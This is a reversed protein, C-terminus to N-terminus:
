IGETPLTPARPPSGNVSCVTEIYELTENLYLLTRGYPVAAFEAIIQNVGAPLRQLAGVQKSSANAEDAGRKTSHVSITASLFGRLFHDFLSIEAELALVFFRFDKRDVDRFMDLEFSPRAFGRKVLSVFAQFRCQEICFMVPSVGSGEKVDKSLMDTKGLKDMFAFMSEPSRLLACIDLVISDSRRKKDLGDKGQLGNKLLFLAVEPRGSQIALTFHSNRRYKTEADANIFGREAFTRLQELNGNALLWMSPTYASYNDQMEYEYDKSNFELHWAIMERQDDRCAMVLPTENMINTAHTEYGAELLFRVGDIYGHQYCYHAVTNGDGDRPMAHDFYLVSLHQYFRAENRRKCSEILLRFIVPSM